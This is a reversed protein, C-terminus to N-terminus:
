GAAVPAPRHGTVEAGAHPVLSRCDRVAWFAMLAVLAFAVHFDGLQPTAVTLMRKKL